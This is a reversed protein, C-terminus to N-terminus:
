VIIQMGDGVTKMGTPYSSSSLLGCVGCYTKPTDDGKCAVGDQPHKDVGCPEKGEGYRKIRMFGKEGWGAGWSNRIIWYDKGNESGYGVMQVGHDLDFGCGSMGGEFIGGGYLQWGITGAALTIAVPGVNALANVMATYNNEPLVVYGTNIADAQIKAKRCTGTSGTYPYKSELSLGSKATYNFALPQTSGECGGQGGCDDPNPSCSVVQQESMVPAPKGTAIALHSEFTEVASFAWCSGCAGQNKVKTLVGEKTRYDMSDPLKMGDGLAPIPAAATLASTQAAADPRSGSVRWSRFEEFTWDTFENPAAHWTKDANSNHELVRAMNEAFIAARSASAEKAHVKGFESLYQEYSYGEFDQEGPLRLDESLAGASGFHGIACVLATLRAM